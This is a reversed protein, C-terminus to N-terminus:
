CVQGHDANNLLDQLDGVTAVSQLGDISMAQGTRTEIACIMEALALSDAGLDEILDAEPTVKAPSIRLTTGILDRLDGDEM